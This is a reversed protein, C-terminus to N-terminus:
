SGGKKGRISGAANIVLKHQVLVKSNREISVSVTAGVFGKIRGNRHFTLTNKNSNSNSLTVKLGQQPPPVVYRLVRDKGKGDKTLVIWGNTFNGGEGACTEGDNSACLSVDDKLRMAESQAYYFASQWENVVTRVAGRRLMNQYSPIAFSLIIAVIAITVMLELLTFGSQKKSYSRANLPKKVRM